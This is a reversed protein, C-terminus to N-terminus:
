IRMPEKFMEQEKRLTQETIEMRDDLLHEVLFNQQWIKKGNETKILCLIKKDGDLRRIAIIGTRVFHVDHKVFYRNWFRKLCNWKKM